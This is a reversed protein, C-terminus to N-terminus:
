VLRTEFENKKDFSYRGKNDQAVIQELMSLDVDKSYRKLAKIIKEVPAWGGNLDIYIPDISHRLLFALKISITKM